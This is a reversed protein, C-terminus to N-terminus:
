VHARGIKAEVIQQPSIFHIHADVGGATLILGEGAIVETGVGIVLGPDVGQMLDPNGSKGIASIFGSRIGVDAKYIGSHDLILANTIVLDPVDTADPSQGMGDRAVKGGGFVVEEGYVTLDREVEAILETDALRVRDGITPGYLHHYAHRQIERPM